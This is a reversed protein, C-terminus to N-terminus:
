HGMLVSTLNHYSGRRVKCYISMGLNLVSMCITDTFLKNLRFTFTIIWNFHFLSSQNLICESRILFLFFDRVNHLLHQSCFPCLCFPFIDIYKTLVEPSCFVLCFASNFADWLWISMLELCDQIRPSLLSYPSSFLFWATFLIDTCIKYLEIRPFKWIGCIFLCWVKLDNNEAEINQGTAM